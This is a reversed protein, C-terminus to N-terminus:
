RRRRTMAPMALLFVVLSLSPLIFPTSVSGDSIAGGIIPGLSQGIGISSEFLGASRGVKGPHAEAIMVAQSIAYVISYAAGAITYAAILIAGSPDRILILLSSLSLIVLSVVVNMARRRRNL